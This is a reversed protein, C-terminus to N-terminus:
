LERLIGLFRSMTVAGDLPTEGDKFVMFYRCQTGAARAWAAGLAIKQRSDDNKLHGGKTEALIIKGSQTCIMIDPYHNIFGNIYFDHREMIRHWWRVNPLATVDMVLERELTDMNAEAQYLSKGITSTYETPTIYLPLHFSPKCIIKETELWLDFRERCYGDLLAEIKAKIKGAFGLPSKELAALQNKDMQGVILDIYAQLERSDIGDMKNLQHHMVDKCQKVRREPPLANFYTKFYQQDASSMKLVKPTSGEAEAVDVEAIEDDAATFDIDYPKGKLSFGVALAARDLPALGDEFFTSEPIHLYFQPLELAQIEEAFAENVVFANMKDRVERPLESATGWDQEMDEDYADGITDGEALMGEAPSTIDPTPAERRRELLEMVASDDIPPIDDPETQPDGIVTQVGTIPPQPVPPVAFTGVRYDRANFGASNLGRVIGDLTASFDNSCTLVYSRNLGKHAFQRTHPQRLVRGLIQEVDVQSTKNALSALIYAFPCDWGEKLANVTIIYRIPCDEAMLDVNKLENITATKVAIEGAPIGIGVLRARLKEFTTSDEKGKPQAQFLVIPRIYPQEERAQKELANRLDIADALVEEIRDRNYVIVPLKVMNERKLQVADVYSIINSEKRPTATLDLVFSPNFNRLMELSLESGAHHSEDVVVVPNLFRIVQILATEDTDALLLDPDKMWQAFGALYGNEQYAKRGEKKSTRFSDYSLVMVSLQEMVDTPTFQQGTLLEQKTYVQVRGGFDMELKMRYPHRPNKLNKVTQELIADSPVLWVVAQAKLFPLADFLPRLSACALFTKGGGTPVKFCLHPVGKLIDQYARIGGGGVPVNQERWFLRFARATDGTENLLELFRTLDRLAKKQYSKLEM